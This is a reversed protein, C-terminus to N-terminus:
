GLEYQSALKRDIQEKEARFERYRRNWSGIKMYQRIGAFLWISSISIMAGLLFALVTGFENEIEMVAFFSPHRILYISLGIAIPALILASISVGLLTKRIEFIQEIFSDMLALINNRASISALEDNSENIDVDNYNTSYGGHNEDM